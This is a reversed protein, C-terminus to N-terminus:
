AARGYAIQEATQMEPAVRLICARCRYPTGILKSDHKDEETPVAGCLCVSLIQEALAHAVKAKCCREAADLFGIRYREGCEGCVHTEIVDPACCNKADYYESHETGCSSCKYVTKVNM